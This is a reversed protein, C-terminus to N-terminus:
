SSFSFLVGGGHFSYDVGSFIFYDMGLRGTELRVCIASVDPAYSTYSLLWFDVRLRPQSISEHLVNDSIEKPM